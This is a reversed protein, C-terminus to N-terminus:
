AYMGQLRRRRIAQKTEDEVVPIEAAEQQVTEEDTTQGISDNPDGDDVLVKKEKEEEKEVLDDHENQNSSTTEAPPQEKITEANVETSSIPPPQVAGTDSEVTKEQMDTNEEEVLAEKGDEHSDEEADMPPSQATGHAHDSFQSLVDKTKVNVFREPKYHEHQRHIHTEKYFFILLPIMLFVLALVSLMRYPLNVRYRRKHHDDKELEPFSQHLYQGSRPPSPLNVRGNGAGVTTGAM